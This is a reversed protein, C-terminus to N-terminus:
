RALLGDIPAAGIVRGQPNKSEAGGRYLGDAHHRASAPHISLSRFGGRATPRLPALRLHARDGAAHHNRRRSKRDWAPSPNRDALSLPAHQCTGFTPGAGHFMTRCAAHKAHMGTERCFRTDRRRIPLAARGVRLVFIELARDPTWVMGFNIM